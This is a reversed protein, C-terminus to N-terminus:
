PSVSIRDKFTDFTKQGIGKVKMIEEISQFGGNKQRYDIIAKAKSEGIGPLDMLKAQTATNLDVIASKTSGSRRPTATPSSIPSPSPSSEMVAAQISPAATKEPEPSVSAAPKANVTAAPMSERERSAGDLLAEMQENVAAQQDLDAKTGSAIRYVAVSGGGLVLVLLLLFVRRYELLLLRM